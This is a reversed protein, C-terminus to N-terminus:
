EQAKIKDIISTTSIGKMIPITIVKGGSNKVIIGGEIESEQYNNGKVLIDPLVLRIIEKPSDEEFIVVYDVATLADLVMARHKECMIPRGSGKLRGISADSNLGVVLIEGLDSAKELFDVHGAHLIDFCGNTFVIKHGTWLSRNKPLEDKRIIM